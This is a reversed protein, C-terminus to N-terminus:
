NKPVLERKPFDKHTESYAEISQLIARLEKLTFEDARNLTFSFHNWILRDQLYLDLQFTWWRDYVLAKNFYDLNELLLKNKEIDKAKLKMAMYTAMYDWLSMASYDITSHHLKEYAENIQKKMKRLVYEQNSVTNLWKEKRRNAFHVIMYIGDEIIQYNLIFDKQYEKDGFSYDKM